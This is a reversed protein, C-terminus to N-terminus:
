YAVEYGLRRAIAEQDFGRSEIVRMATAKDKGFLDICAGDFWDQYQYAINYVVGDSNAFVLFADAPGGTGLVFRLREGYTDDKSQYDCCLISERVEDMAADAEQHTTGEEYGHAENDIIEFLEDFQEIRGDRQDYILEACTKEKTM